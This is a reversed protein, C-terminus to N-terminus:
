VSTANTHQTLRAIHQGLPFRDSEIDAHANSDRDKLGDDSM